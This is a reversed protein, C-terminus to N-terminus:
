VRAEKTKMINCRHNNTKRRSKIAADIVSKVTNENTDLIIKCDYDRVECLYKKVLLIRKEKDTGKDIFLIVLKLEPIIVDLPIGVLDEDDFLVQFDYQQLWQKRLQKPDVRACYICGANEFVRGYVKSKWSHGCPGKWWVSRMSHRSIDTPHLTGNKEYDWELSLEPDTTALDNYGSRVVRQACAPCKLGNARSKIVAQYEHGCNSCVWWVNRPSKHNVESPLLVGNKGSWEETLSPHTTALDNFGELLKIGSCYPCSSGYARTSIHTHWSHGEKCVWWVKTNSFATVQSPLLPLNDTSWEQAVEPFLYELDNFGALVMNHSCYPCGAGAARSRIVAEWEHGCKGQWIAKKHSGIGVATVPMPNKTSWEVALDPMLSALDNIGPIIRKGSCIPCKEGQSRAKASAEWEHGCKGKWWYVKKSGYSIDEPSLPLNRPSWETVIEPRMAALSNDM